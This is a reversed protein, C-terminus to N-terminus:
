EAYGKLDIYIDSIVEKIDSASHKCRLIIEGVRFYYCLLLNIATSGLTGQVSCTILLCQVHHVM